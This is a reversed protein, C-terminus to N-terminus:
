PHADWDAHVQVHLQAGTTSNAAIASTCDVSGKLGTSDNKEHNFTCGMGSDGGGAALIITGDGYTFIEGPTGEAAQTNLLIYEAGNGSPDAFNAM